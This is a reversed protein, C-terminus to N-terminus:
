IESECGQVETNHVQARGLCDMAEQLMASQRHSESQFPAMQTLLLAREYPNKGVAALLEREKQPPNTPVAGAADIRESDVRRDKMSRAGFIAAQSERKTVTDRM